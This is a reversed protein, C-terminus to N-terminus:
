FEFRAGLQLTRPDLIGNIQNFRAGNLINFNTVPNTNTINFIDVMGTVKHSGFTFSKDFRFSLLAVSDSRNDSLNGSWFRQVGSNPLTVSIIRAYPWGSQVDFNAGVGIDYKFVYRSSLHFSWLTTTQRNSITSYPNEFYDAPSITDSQTLPNNSNQYPSELDDARTWDFSTDLFLGAAFRKNFALEVTDYNWSGGDGPINAIQNSIVGSLANPIDNVTFNQVGLIGGDVSRLTVPVNVPVTFQGVWAANFSQNNQGTIQDRSMKRVYAVRVSSEGWFQRQASADIEDTHPVRINPAVITSAGGTSSILRGLDQPGHYLGDGEKNLFQYTKTNAGGPDVSTFTDAFNYYYRGYFAKLATKGDGKPDVSVGLRPAVNNRVFLTQAPVTLASFVETLIPDRKSEIYYPRQRDYRVGATVTVRSTPTWRDQGYFAVRRDRDSPITWTSGLKGPDGLDTLRIESPQGNLDLYLLPGSTGISAFNSQDDIWEFGIKLDHSGSKATPLYYTANGYIQPKARELDFPGSTGGQTFGAGSDVGTGLDTRPPLKTYDVSPREPFDYGFEGVNVESFLRNSWVRQWKGNYMWGPSHQALTSNPGRTVALGRFPKDKKQWQYYGIFTDAGSAKYTEKTTFNKNLGLDTATTLPVGSIAKDIHFYNYAVFFWAKDKVIPGGFDEHNEWFLQNAELSGGRAAIGSDGAVNDGVFSKAEYTQNFLAKFQNGGSKITSIVAAGPTNMSVDQGAASVAVENQSFYDQYGGTGGTGETTDVGETVIRTQNRIGFAQYGSQQSKHSGGVDFGQMRIGPTQALAGWLDTSTPVGILKDTQLVNGVATSSVDVIPSAATVTVNEQLTAVQLVPDITLTQGLNLSINTRTLTQFGSLEFKLTYTGSPLDPFRYSGNAETVVTQSGILSPSTATVTVGPLVAGQADKAVGTLHSSTSQGLAPSVLCVWWALALFCGFVRKM